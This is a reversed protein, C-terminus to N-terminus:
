SKKSAGAKRWEAKPPEPLNQARLATRFHMKALKALAAAGHKSFLDKAVADVSTGAGKPLTVGYDKGLGALRKVFEDRALISAAAVAL